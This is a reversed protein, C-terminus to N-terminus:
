VVNILNPMVVFIILLVVLMRSYKLLVVNIKTRLVVNTITLVVLTM